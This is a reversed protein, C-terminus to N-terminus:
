WPQWSTNGRDMASSQASTLDFAHCFHEVSFTAGKNELPSNAWNSAPNNTHSLVCLVDFRCPKQWAQCSALYARAAQILSRQKHPTIADAPSSMGGATRTKVEAFVLTDGDQAIIDLEYRGQRWNRAVIRLGKQQLFAAAYDEGAKGLRQRATLPARPKATVM